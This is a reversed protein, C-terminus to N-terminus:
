CLWTFNVCFGFYYLNCSFEFTVTYLTRTPLENIELETIRFYSGDQNGNRSEFFSLSGNGQTLQPVAFIINFGSSRDIENSALNHDGLKVTEEIIKQLSLNELPEYAPSNILIYHELHEATGLPPRIGLEAFVIADYSGNVTDSIEITPSHTIISSTLGFFSFYNDYGANYCFWEGNMEGEFYYDSVVGSCNFEAENIVSPYPDKECSFLFLSIIFVSIIYKMQSSM